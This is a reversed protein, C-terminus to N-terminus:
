AGDISHEIAAEAVLVNAAVDPLFLTFVSGADNSRTLEIRAGIETALRKALALGLGLGRQERSLSLDGTEFLRWIRDRADEPIGPGTDRVRLAAGAGHPEAVIEVLGGEPTFKLANDVLCDVLQRVYEPDALIALPASAVDIRLGRADAEARRKTAIDALLAPLSVRESQPTRTGSVLSAFGLAENIRRGLYRTNTVVVDLFRPTDEAGVEDDRLAEAYSLARSLPTRLEDGVGHLIASKLADIQLLRRNATELERNREELADFLLLRSCALAAADFTARLLSADFEDYASGTLKPGVLVLWDVQKEVNLWASREFGLQALRAAADAFAEAAVTVLPALPELHPLFPALRAALPPAEEHLTAPVDGIAAVQEFRRGARDRRLVVLRECAFSGTLALAMTRALDAQSRSGALQRHLDLMVTQLTMARRALERTDGADVLQQLRGGPEPQRRTAATTKRRVAM